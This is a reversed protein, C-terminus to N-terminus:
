IILSCISSGFDNRLTVHSISQLVHGRPVCGFGCVLKGAM